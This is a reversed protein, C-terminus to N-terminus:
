PVLSGAGGPRAHRPHGTLHGDHTGANKEESRCNHEHFFKRLTGPHVRQLEELTPWRELLDGVLPSTWM